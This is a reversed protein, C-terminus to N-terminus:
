RLIKSKTKIQTFVAIWFRKESKLKIYIPIKKCLSFKGNFFLNSKLQKFVFIFGSPIWMFFDPVLLCSWSSFNFLSHSIEFKILTRKGSNSKYQLCKITEPFDNKYLKKNKRHFGVVVNKLRNEGLNIQRIYCYIACIHFLRKLIHLM